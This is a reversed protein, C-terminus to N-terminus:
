EIIEIGYGLEAEIDELTMRKKTPREWILMFDDLDTKVSNTFGFGHLVMPMYVKQISFEEHHSTLYKDYDKLNLWGHKNIDVMIDAQGCMNYTVNKIVIYEKDNRTIVHMGTKLDEIKM